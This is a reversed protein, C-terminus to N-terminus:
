GSGGMGQRLAWRRVNLIRRDSYLAPDSTNLTMPVKEKAENLADNDAGIQQIERMEKEWSKHTAMMQLNPTQPESDLSSLHPIPNTIHSQHNTIEKRTSLIRLSRISPNQTKPVKKQFSFRVNCTKSERLVDM